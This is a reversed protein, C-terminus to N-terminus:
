TRIFIGRRDLWVLCTTSQHALTASVTIAWCLSLNDSIKLSNNSSSLFLNPITLPDCDIEYFYRGKPHKILNLTSIVAQTLLSKTTHQDILYSPHLPSMKTTKRNPGTEPADRWPTALLRCTQGVDACLYLRLLAEPLNRLHSQSM